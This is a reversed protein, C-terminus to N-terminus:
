SSAKPQKSEAQAAKKKRLRKKRDRKKVQTVEKSV